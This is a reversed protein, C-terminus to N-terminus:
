CISPLHDAIYVFKRNKMIKVLLKMTLNLSDIGEFMIKTWSMLKIFLSLIKAALLVAM